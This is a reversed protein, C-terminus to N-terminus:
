RHQICRLSGLIFGHLSGNGMCFNKSNEYVDEKM